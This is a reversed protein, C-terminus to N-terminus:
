RNRFRTEHDVIKWCMSKLLQFFSQEVVVFVPQFTKMMVMSSLFDLYVLLSKERAISAFLIWPIIPWGLVLCNRILISFLANGSQGMMLSSMNPGVLCIVSWTLILFNVTDIVIRSRYLFTVMHMSSNGEKHCDWSMELEARPFPYYFGFSTGDQRLIVPTCRKDCGNGGTEWMKPSPWNLKMCLSIALSPMLSKLLPLRVPVLYLVDSVCVIVWRCAQAHAWKSPKGKCM